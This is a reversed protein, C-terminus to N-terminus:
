TIWKLITETQNFPMLMSFFSNRFFKLTNWLTSYHIKFALNRKKESILKEITNISDDLIGVM